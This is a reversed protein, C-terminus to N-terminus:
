KKSAGDGKAQEEFAIATALMEERHELVEAFSEPVDVYEGRKILYAKGNIAVYEADNDDRRKELKLRVKKEEKKVETKKTETAM